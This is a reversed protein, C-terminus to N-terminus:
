VVCQSLFCSEQTKCPVRSQLGRDTQRGTTKGFLGPILCGLLAILNGTLPTFSGPARCSIHKPPALLELGLSTLCFFFPGIKPARASCEVQLFKRTKLLFTFHDSVM